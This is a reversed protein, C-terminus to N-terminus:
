RLVGRRKQNQLKLTTFILTIFKTLPAVQTNDFLFQSTLLTFSSYCGKFKLGTILTVITQERRARTHLM